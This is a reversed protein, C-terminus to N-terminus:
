AAGNLFRFLMFLTYSQTLTSALICLANMFSIVILVRKRGISDAVSGWLYAGVM